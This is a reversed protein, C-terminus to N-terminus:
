GRISTKFSIKTLVVRSITRTMIDEVRSLSARVGSTFSASKDCFRFSPFM